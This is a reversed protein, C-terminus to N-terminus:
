NACHQRLNDFFPKDFSSSLRQADDIRGIKGDAVLNAYDWVVRRDPTVEIARGGVAETLLLNGNSLRQQKGMVNTFFQQGADGDFLVDPGPRAASVRLVRSHPLPSHASPPNNDFVSITNGDLFDPDHQRVFSGWFVHKVGNFEKGFVIVANINRLSLMVDGPSFVGSPVARPFVEIDNVHLMDSAVEVNEDDVPSIYLLSGLGNRVLIDAVRWEHLIKGDDSVKLISYDVFPPTYGPLDARPTHVMDLSPVWFNGDDDRFVSHHTMRPLRWVIKGCGDVRYLGTRELNFVLDGNDLLVIGHVHTGPPSRPKFRPDIHTADPWLDFWNLAWRYISNGDADVIRAEIQADAGIGSVLTLGPAMAAQQLTAVKKTRQTLRYYNPLKWGFVEQVREFGESSKRLVQYPFWHRDAVFYGYAFSAAIVGIVFMALEKRAMAM